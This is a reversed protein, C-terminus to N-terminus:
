ILKLRGLVPEYILGQDLLSGVIEELQERDIKRKAAESSVEKYPAGEDDV